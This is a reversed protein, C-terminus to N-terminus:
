MRQVETASVIGGGSDPSACDFSASNERGILESMFCRTGGARLHKTEPRGLHFIAAAIRDVVIRRASRELVACLNYSYALSGFPTESECPDSGASWSPKEPTVGGFAEVVTPGSVTGSSIVNTVKLNCGHRM